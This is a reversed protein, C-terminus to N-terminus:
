ILCKEMFDDAYTGMFAQMPTAPLIPQEIVPPIAHSVDFM